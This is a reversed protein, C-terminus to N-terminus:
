PKPITGHHLKFRRLLNKELEWTQMGAWRPCTVVRVVFKHIWVSTSATNRRSSEDTPVIEVIKNM